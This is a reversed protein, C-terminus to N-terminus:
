STGLLFGSPPLLGVWFIIEPSQVGRKETAHLHRLPHGLRRALFTLGYCVGKLKVREGSPVGLEESDKGGEGDGWVM